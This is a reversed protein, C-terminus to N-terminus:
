TYASSRLKLDVIPIALERRGHPRSYKVLLDDAFLKDIISQARLRRTTMKKDM